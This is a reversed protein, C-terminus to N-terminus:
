WWFTVHGRGTIGRGHGFSGDHRRWCNGPSLLSGALQHSAPSCYQGYPETLIARTSTSRKPFKMFRARLFRFSNPLHEQLQGWDWCGGIRVRSKSCRFYLSACGGCSMLPNAVVRRGDSLRGVLEHGLVLPPRRLPSHGLFGSIDSGCVGAVEIAVEIEGAGVAPRPRQEMKVKEPATYVLARM